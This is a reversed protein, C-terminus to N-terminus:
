ANIKGELKQQVSIPIYIYDKDIFNTCSIMDKDFSLVTAKTQAKDETIVYYAYFITDPKNHVCEVTITKDKTQNKQIYEFEKYRSTICFPIYGDDKYRKTYDEITTKNKLIRNAQYQSKYTILYKVKSSNQCKCIYHTYVYDGSRASYCLKIDKIPVFQINFLTKSDLYYFPDVLVVCNLVSQIYLALRIFKEKNIYVEVMFSFEDDIFRVSDIVYHGPVIKSIFMQMDTNYVYNEPIKTTTDVAEFIPYRELFFRESAKEVSLITNLYISEHETNEVRFILMYDVETIKKITYPIIKDPFFQTRKIIKRAEPFEVKYLEM